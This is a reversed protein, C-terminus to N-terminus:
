KALKVFKEGDKFTEQYIGMRSKLPSRMDKLDTKYM